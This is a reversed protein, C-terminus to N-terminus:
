EPFNTGVLMLLVLKTNKLGQCIFGTQYYLFLKCTVGFVSYKL